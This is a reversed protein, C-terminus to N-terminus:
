NGQPIWEHGKLVAVLRQTGDDLIEWMEAGERMRANYAMYEPVIEDGSKTFGNGTFPDTWRNYMPDGGMTENRPVEYWGTSSYDLQFRILHTGPDDPLYPSNEYDLRPGKYIDGPTSLRFTDSAVTVAGGVQEPDFKDPTTLHGDGRGPSMIYDDARSQKFAGSEDFFGPPIVKQMVTDRGPAPLNDRVASLLDREAPSLSSTPKQILDIFESKSIGHANLADLVPESRDCQHAQTFHRKM